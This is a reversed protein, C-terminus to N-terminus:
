KKKERKIVPKGSLIKHTVVVLSSIIAIVVFNKVTGLVLSQIRIGDDENDRKEPKGPQNVESQPAPPNLKEHDPTSEESAPNISPFDKPLAQVVFYLSCGLFVAVVLVLLFRLTFKM